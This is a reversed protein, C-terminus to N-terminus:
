SPNSNSRYAREVAAARRGDRVSKGGIAALVLGLLAVPLLLWM